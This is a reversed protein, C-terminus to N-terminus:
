LLSVLMFLLLILVLSMKSNELKDLLKMMNMSRLKDLIRWVFGHLHKETKTREACFYVEIHMNHLDEQKKIM